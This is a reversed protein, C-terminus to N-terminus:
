ERTYSTIRYAYVFCTSTDGGGPGGRTGKKELFFSEVERASADSFTEGFIWKGNIESVNHDSFLRTKPDKAIGVYWDYYYGGEKQIYSDIEQIIREKTLPM